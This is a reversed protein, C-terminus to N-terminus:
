VNRTFWGLCQPHVYDYTHERIADSGVWHGKWMGGNQELVVLTTTTSGDGVVAVHGFPNAITKNFFVIDGAKPIAAKYNYVRKWTKDFPSGTNWGNLASGGFGKLSVWYLENVAKKSWAVCQAWFAPTEIYKSWQWKAKLDQYKM